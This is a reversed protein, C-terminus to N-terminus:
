PLLNRYAQYDITLYEYISMPLIVMAIVFSLIAAVCLVAVWVEEEPAINMIKYAGLGCAAAFVLLLVGGGIGMRARTIAAERAALWLPGGAEKATEIMQKFEDPNM